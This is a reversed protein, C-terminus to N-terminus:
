ASLKTLIWAALRIGRYYPREIILGNAQFLADSWEPIDFREDRIWPRMGSFWSENPEYPAVLIMRSNEGKFRELLDLLLSYPPYAYLLGEPWREQGLEDGDPARREAVYLVWPPM